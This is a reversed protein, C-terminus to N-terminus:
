KKYLKSNVITIALFLFVIFLSIRAIYDGYISYFTRTFNIPLDYSFAEKKNWSTKESITGNPLIIGSIGTNASRIVPKRKEIARLRSYQFHQKYGATNKWWGDNTIVCLVGANTLDIGGYISEYCINPQIILSDINFSNITNYSGLSGSTGGLDVIWKALKDFFAPLPMSEVGPVLKEKHYFSVDGHKSIFVASNFVDYYLDRNHFKRATQTKADSGGLIKYTTAGVLVNLNPYKKQLEKFANVSFSTSTNNENIQELLATEPGVLLQTNSDIHYESLNIFEKLQQIYDLNFKELYPDVNPQLVVTKLNLNTSNNYHNVIYLSFLVPLAFFSFLILAHKALKNKIYLFILINISLIWLTGGLVGTYEYWQVFETVTSFVNGLTLWPWSFQWNLHFYEMSIWLSIFFIYKLNNKLYFNVKCYIFFVSAMLFSNVLFAILAGPKTAHYIWYTTFINFIFFSVFSFLFIKLAANKPSNLRLREELFLLPVFAFFVFIFYGIETWSFALFFGSIIPLYEKKM